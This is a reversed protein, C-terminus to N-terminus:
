KKKKKKKHLLNQIGKKPVIYTFGEILGHIIYNIPSRYINRKYSYTATSYKKDGPMNSPHIAANAIASEFAKRKPKDNDQEKLVELSLDKYDFVLHNRSWVNDAEMNYQIRQIDGTLMKVGILPKLTSNFDSFKMNTVGVDVKFTQKKYPAQLDLSLVAKNELTANISAELAVVEEQRKTKNTIGTIKGNIDGIIIYGTEPKNLGLEGYAVSSNYISISDLELDIPIANIMGQFMPKTTDKLRPLNKNRQLKIQLGEITVSEADIDLETYFESSPELQHVGIEKAEFEIIDNQFGIERSVAVWNKNFGLEVDNLLVQKEKLDYKFRGLNMYTYENLQINVGEINVRIDGLQFPILHNFQMADTEIETAFIDVSEVAGLEEKTKADLFVLSGKKLSFSTLNARSLIDGFMAQLGKGGKNRTSDQTVEVKFVPKNFAIERIDLRKGFLLEMWQLGNLTAFDVDGTVVSGGKYQLPEIKVEKLTVGTFFNDLDFDEYVINYAREPNKNIRNEFNIELWVELGKSVIVFLVGLVIFVKFIKRTTISVNM